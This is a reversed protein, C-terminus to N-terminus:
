SNPLLQCSCKRPPELLLVHTLSCKKRESKGFSFLVSRYKWRARARARTHTHTHKLTYTYTHSRAHTHTDTTHSHTHCLTHTRTRTHPHSHTPTHARTHIHVYYIKYIYAHLPRCVPRDPSHIGTFTFKNHRGSQGRPVCLTWRLSYTTKAPQFPRLMTSFVWKRRASSQSHIQAIHGGGRQAQM